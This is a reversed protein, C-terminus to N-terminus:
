YPRHCPAHKNYYSVYNNMALVMERSPDCRLAFETLFMTYRTRKTGSFFWFVKLNPMGQKATILSPSRGVGGALRVM